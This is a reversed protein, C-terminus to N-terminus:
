EVINFQKRLQELEQEVFNFRVDGAGRVTDKNTAPDRKVNLEAASVHINNVKDFFLVRHGEESTLSMEQGVAQYVARDALAYQVVSTGQERGMRNMMQVNGEVIFELPIIHGEESRYHMTIKDAHITGIPDDLVVQENLIITEEPINWNMLHAVFSLGETSGTGSSQIKGRPQIFAVSRKKIDIQIQNADILDGAPSTLQCKGENGLAELAIFGRPKGEELDQRSYVAKDAFARFHQHYSVQVDEEADITNIYSQVGGESPKEAFTVNMRRSQILFPLPRHDSRTLLDSYIVYPQQAGASFQGSLTLYNLDAKDCILQSGNAFAFRVNNELKMVPFRVKTTGDGQSLTMQDAYLTGLQHQLEVDGSLEISSGNYSAMKSTLAVQEHAMLSLSSLLILTQFLAYLLKM